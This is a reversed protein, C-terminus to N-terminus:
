LFITTMTLVFWHQRNTPSPIHVFTEQTLNVFQTSWEDMRVEEGFCKAASYCHQVVKEKTRSLCCIYNVCSHSTKAWYFM